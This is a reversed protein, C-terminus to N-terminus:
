GIKLIVSNIQIMVIKKSLNVFFHISYVPEIFTFFIHLKREFYTFYVFFDTGKILLLLLDFFNQVNFVKKKCLKM